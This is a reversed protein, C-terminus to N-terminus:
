TLRSRKETMANGPMFLLREPAASTAAIALVCWSVRAMVGRSVYLLWSLRIGNHVAFHGAAGGPTKVAVAWAHEQMVAHLQAAWAMRGAVPANTSPSPGQYLQERAARSKKPM